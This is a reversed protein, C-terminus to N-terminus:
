SFELEPPWIFIQVKQKLLKRVSNALSHLHIEPKPKEKGLYAHLLQFYSQMQLSNCQLNTQEGQEIIFFALHHKRTMRLNLLTSHALWLCAQLM